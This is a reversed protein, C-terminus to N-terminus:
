KNTHTLFVRVWNIGTSELFEQSLKASHKPNNDQHFRHGEQFNEQFSPFM